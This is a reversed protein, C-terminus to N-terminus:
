LGKEIQKLKNNTDILERNSEDVQMKTTQIEGRLEQIKIYTEQLEALTKDPCEKLEKELLEIKAEKKGIEVDKGGLQGYLNQIWFVTGGGLALMIIIMVVMWFKESQLNGTATIIDAVQSKGVVGNESVDQTPMQYPETNHEENM